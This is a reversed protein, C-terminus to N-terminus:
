RKFRLVGRERLEALFVALTEDVPEVREGYENRLGEAIEEMTKEGDIEMWVTSGVDDLDMTKESPTRFIRYVLEEFRNGPSNDLVLTVEGDGEREPEHIWDKPDRVPVVDLDLDSEM